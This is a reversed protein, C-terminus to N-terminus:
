KSASRSFGDGSLGFDARIEVEMRNEEGRALDARFVRQGRSFQQNPPPVGHM